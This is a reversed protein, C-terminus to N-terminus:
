FVGPSTLFRLTEQMIRQVSNPSLAHGRGQLRILEYRVGSASLERALAEAQDAPVARDDEYQFILTAPAGPRVYALPSAEWLKADGRAASGLFDELLKATTKGTTTELNREAEPQMKWCRLDTPGSIDIVAQVAEEARHPAYAALLALHAGASAGMVAVRSADLRWRAANMRLFRIASRVDEVQAPYKDAPALRYEVAAAALGHAAFQRIVRHFSRRHGMSWGGGHLCVVVPADPGGEPPLALDLKLEREAIQQYTLGALFFGQGGAWSRQCSERWAALIGRMRAIESPLRSALNVTEHPDATMDFLLDQGGDLITLLKYRNEILALRPSGRTIRSTEFALPFRREEVRGDLLPLLSEGDLPRRDVPGLGLADLITPFYDSTSCAAQIVRPKSYRDPWELIGPVRIGGEFLSAKRGRFPGASGPWEPSERDGEPGNDSAYWLMTNGAVGLSRLRARLRGVQRDLASLAGWYHQQTEGYVAYPARDEAAALFPAHPAHFWIVALFPQRAMAAREIFRLARNMIIRSDDGRLAESVPRGNEWYEAPPPDLTPVKRVTSFWEQFGADSPSSKMPGEFDGLHWKGFHGTRYGLPGLIEALTVERSPLAYESRQGAQGANAFFIGYRFPHRGTLCSGRTPSCVPAGAYFREFRVGHQAMEDLRPTRLIKHGHYGADGWGQDDAMLLVINPRPPVRRGTMLSPAAASFLFDRRPWDKM